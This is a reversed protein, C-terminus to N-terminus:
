ALNSKKELDEISLPIFVLDTDNLLEKIRNENSSKEDLNLTEVSNKYRLLQNVRSTIKHEGQSLVKCKM